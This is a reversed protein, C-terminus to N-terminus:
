EAQAFFFRKWPSDTWEDQIWLAQSVQKLSFSFSEACRGFQLKRFSTECRRQRPKGAVFDFVAATATVDPCYHVKAKRNRFAATGADDSVCAFCLTVVRARFCLFLYIFFVSGRLDFFITRACLLRLYKWYIWSRQSGDRFAGGMGYGNVSRVALVVNRERGM